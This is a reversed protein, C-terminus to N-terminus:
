LPLNRSESFRLSQFIWRQPSFHLVQTRAFHQLATQGQVGESLGDDTVVRSFFVGCSCPLMDARTM